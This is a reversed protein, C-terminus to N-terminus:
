LTRGPTCSSAKPTMTRLTWIWPWTHPHIPPRPSPPLLEICPKGPHLAKTAMHLTTLTEPQTGHTMIPDWLLFVPPLVSPAM